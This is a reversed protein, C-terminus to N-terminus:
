CSCVTEATPTKLHRAVQTMFSPRPSSTGFIQHYIAEDVSSGTDRLVTGVLTLSGGAETNGALGLIERIRAAAEISSGLAGFPRTISDILVVRHQGRLAARRAQDIVWLIELANGGEEFPIATLHLRNDNPFAFTDEPRSNVLLVDLSLAQRVVLMRRAILQISDSARHHSSVIVLNCQGLYPSNSM